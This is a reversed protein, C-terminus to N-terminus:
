FYNTCILFSDKQVAVITPEVLVTRIKSNIKQECQCSLAYKSKRFLQMNQFYRKQNSGRICRWRMFIVNTVQFKLELFRQGTNPYRYSYNALSLNNGTDHIIYKPVYFYERTPIMTCQTCLEIYDRCLAV